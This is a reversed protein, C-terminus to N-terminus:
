YRTKVELLYDRMHLIDDKPLSFVAKPYDPLLMEYVVFARPYDKVSRLLYALIPDQKCEDTLNNYYSATAGYIEAARTFNFNDKDAREAEHFDPEYMWMAEVLGVPMWEMTSQVRITDADVRTILVRPDWYCDKGNRGADQMIFEFHEQLRPNNRNLVKATAIERTANDLDGEYRYINALFWHPMYNYFNIEIAQLYCQKAKAVDEMLRYSQGMYTLVTTNEPHKKLVEKYFDVAIDFMGEGYFEEARELQKAAKKDLNYKLPVLNGDVVGQYYDPTYSETKPSPPKFAPDDEMHMVYCLPSEVMLAMLEQLSYTKKAHLSILPISFLILALLARYRFRSCALNVSVPM